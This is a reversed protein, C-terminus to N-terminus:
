RAGGAPSPIPSPTMQEVLAEIRARSKAGLDKLAKRGRGNRRNKWWQWTWYAGLLGLVTAGFHHGQITFAVFQMWSSVAYLIRGVHVKEESGSATITLYHALFTIGCGVWGFADWFSM